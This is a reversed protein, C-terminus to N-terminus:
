LWTGPGPPRVFETGVILWSVCLPQLFPTWWNNRKSKRKFKRKNENVKVHINVNVQVNVNVEVNVHVNLNVHVNVNVKVHAIM